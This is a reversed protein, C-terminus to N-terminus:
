HYPSWRSRCEKGVRREESRSLSSSIQTPPQQPFLKYILQPLLIVTITAIFYLFVPSTYIPLSLAIVAPFFISFVLFGLIQEFGNLITSVSPLTKSFLNKIIPKAPANETNLKM